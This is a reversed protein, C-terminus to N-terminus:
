IQELQAPLLRAHPCCPAPDEGQTAGEGLYQGVSGWTPLFPLGCLHGRGM